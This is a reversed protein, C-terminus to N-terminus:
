INKLIKNAYNYIEEENDSLYRKDWIPGALPSGTGRNFNMDKGYKTKGYYVYKAYPSEWQLGYGKIYKGSNILNSTDRPLYPEIDKLIKRSVKDAILGDNSLAKNYKVSIPKLNFNLNINLM